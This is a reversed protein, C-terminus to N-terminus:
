ANSDYLYMIRPKAALRPGVDAIERELAAMAVRTWKDEVDIANEWEIVITVAPLKKAAAKPMSPNYSANSSHGTRAQGSKSSTGRLMWSIDCRAFPGKARALPTFIAMQCSGRVLVSRIPPTFVAVTPTGLTVRSAPRRDYM